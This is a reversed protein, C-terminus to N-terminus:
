SMLFCEQERGPATKHSPLVSSQTASVPRSSLYFLSPQPQLCPWTFETVTEPESSEWDFPVVPFVRMWGRKHLLMAAYPSSSPFFFCETKVRTGKAVHLAKGTEMTIVLLLKPALSLCFYVCCCSSIILFYTKVDTPSKHLLLAQTM